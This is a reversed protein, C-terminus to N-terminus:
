KLEHFSLKGNLVLNHFKIDANWADYMPVNLVMVFHKYNSVYYMAYIMRPHM